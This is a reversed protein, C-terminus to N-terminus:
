FVTFRTSINEEELSIVHHWWLVPFYICWGEKLVLNYGRSELISISSKQPNRGNFRSRRHFPHTEPQYSNMIDDMGPEWLQIQKSGTLQCLVSGKGSSDYHLNTVADKESFYISLREVYLTNKQNSLQNKFYFHNFAAPLLEKAYTDYFVPGTDGSIRVYYSEGSAIIPNTHRLKLPDNKDLFKFGIDPYNKPGQVQRQLPIFDPLTTINILKRSKLDIYRLTNLPFPGEKLIYENVSKTDITNSPPPYQGPNLNIVDFKFTDYFDYTNTPSAMIKQPMDIGKNYVDRIFILYYNNNSRLYLLFKVKENSKGLRPIIKWDM